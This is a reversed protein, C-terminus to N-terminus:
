PRAPAGHTVGPQEPSISRKTWDPREVNQHGRHWLAREQGYAHLRGGHTKLWARGKAMDPLTLRVVQWFAPSHNLEVLHAVEHAGVYDLVYPPALVLRWNFSLARDSNCSGWRTLQNGMRLRAARVDLTASHRAVSIELDGRAQDRLWDTLRRGMHAPGGPVRLQPGNDTQRCEVQGRIKVSAVIEHMQGRIPIKAGVAFPVPPPARELRAALWGTQGILFQEAEAWRGGDPVTLVPGIRHHLSLRYHRARSSRRVTVPIKAGEIAIYTREPV